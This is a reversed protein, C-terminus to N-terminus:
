YSHKINPTREKRACLQQRVNPLCEETENGERYCQIIVGSKITNDATSNQQKELTQRM